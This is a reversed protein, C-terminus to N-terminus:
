VVLVNSATNLQGSHTAVGAPVSITSATDADTRLVDVLFQHGNGSFNELRGGVVVISQETFGDVRESFAILVTNDRLISLEVSPIPIRVELVLPIKVLRM